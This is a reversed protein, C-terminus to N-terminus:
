ERHSFHVKTGRFAGGEGSQLLENFRPAFLFPINEMNKKFIFTSFLWQFSKLSLRLYYKEKNGYFLSYFHFHNECNFLCGSRNFFFRFFNLSVRVYGDPSCAMTLEYYVRHYFHCSHFYIFFILWKMYKSVYFLSIFLFPTWRQYLHDLINNKGKSYSTIRKKKFHVTLGRAFPRLRTLWFSRKCTALLKVQKLSQAVVHLLTHLRSCCSM